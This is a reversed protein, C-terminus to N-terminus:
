SDPPHTSPSIARTASQQPEKVWEDGPLKAAAEADTAGWRDTFGRTLPPVVVSGVVLLVIAALLALGVWELVGATGKLFANM